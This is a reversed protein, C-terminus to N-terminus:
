SQFLRYQGGKEEVLAILSAQLEPSLMEFDTGFAETWAIEQKDRRRLLVPKTESLVEFVKKSYSEKFKDEKSLVRDLKCKLRSLSPVPSIIAADDYEIQAAVSQQRIREFEAIEKEFKKQLETM